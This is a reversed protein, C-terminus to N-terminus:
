DNRCPRPAPTGSQRYGEWLRGGARDLVSEALRALRAPDDRAAILDAAFEADLDRLERLLWKGGGLWRREVLLLLEATHVLLTWSIIATEGPDTSGALDDLLDSLGYRRSDLESSDVAPPGSSLLERAQGQMQSAAGDRSALVLGDAVMRPLIPRRRAFDQHLYAILSAEDYAFLEVPWGRWRLSERYPAPPGDLLVVVDLDSTATRRSSLVGRGLFGARAAAFRSAILDGAAQVPDAVIEASDVGTLSARAMPRRM